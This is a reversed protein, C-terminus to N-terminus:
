PQAVVNTTASSVYVYEAAGVRRLREILAANEGAKRSCSFIWLRDSPLFRAEHLDNHGLTVQFRAGIDPRKALERWVTSNKGVIVEREYERHHGAQNRDNEVLSASRSRLESSSGFPNAPGPSM